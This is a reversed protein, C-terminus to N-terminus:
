PADQEARACRNEAVDADAVKGLDSRSRDHRAVHWAATRRDTNGRTQGIAGFRNWGLNASTAKRAQWGRRSPGAATTEGDLNEKPLRVNVMILTQYSAYLRAFLGRKSM